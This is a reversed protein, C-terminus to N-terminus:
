DNNKARMKESWSQIASVTRDEKQQATSKEEASDYNGELVKVMNKANLLWDIGRKGPWKGSRGSIFDSAEAKKFLTDFVLLPGGPHDRYKTWRLRIDNKRSGTLEQARSFSPCFKNFADLIERYPIREPQDAPKVPSVGEEGLSPLPLPSPLPSPSLRNTLPREVTTLRRYEESTISEQGKEKLDEYIAPHTKAMRSFRSKDSRDTAASAYGNHECWDHLSYQPTAVGNLPREVTTVDLFGVDVLANVLVHPDSGWGAMIAIDMADMGYLNGDPRDMAVSLWLDVLYDTSREGLIMRLKARKRHNRFSVSIRIDTNM